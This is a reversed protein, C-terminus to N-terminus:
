AVAQKVGLLDVVGGMSAWGSWGSNPAVQWNHWVAGDMGRAFIELRGDGNEGVTLLDIVGGESAWGSWGGGPSVQWNHWAAGDMGRAFVELRGDANRAVTLIDVVGGMSAWGSWGSNPAVQWNHWVAGDMGRGFVELRGDSNTGVALGDITGGESAWGSWGGGPSVQWNHWLGHDAGIVFVELRGDANKGVTPQDIWGSESAWGSWGGGPTVQWDHWLAHDMGRAFVELRGDFNRAVALQDIWGGESAWGSWGGGPSVQWNHWLAHDSGIVFAELRGDVNRAIVPQDIWGGLSAWGSWGGPVQWQHWLGQDMGRAFIELVSPALQDLAAKAQLIGSGSHQDWGGPGIDRATNKLAAKIQDQTAASNAQKLLAVVGAAIPTAASTGSDSTFYGTFHTASCFDPKNPDLAAPGQSSYGVFESRINVAGVTMVQPHGNAGWISRGPGTDGSCRGDPCSEGCNGAAFLVLIGENIAEVVKRTFPHNPDTAYAPDWAEQFIGWSNSLVQPTGDAKHRNIAWDFGSLANSIADGDSIRIDYIQANPAMGLADTSTMNGHDGWAAATTGWDAPWGDIVRPIKATEGSRPTRGLATIGGDVIGVVIGDGLFGASWIQDVGLFSAVDPIAGKPTRPDCDCPPIPCTGLGAVTQVHDSEQLDNFPAIKTDNWVKIVNPQAEVEAIRSEDITGRIIVSEETASSARATQDPTPNISVPEYSPDVQFGPVNLRAATQVALAKAQGKPVRMEVLVRKRGGGPAGATMGPTPMAGTSPAAMGPSPMQGASKKGMGGTPMATHMAQGPASPMGGKTSGSKDFGPKSTQSKASGDAAKRGPMTAGPGKAKEDDSKGPM